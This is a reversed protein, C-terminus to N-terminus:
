STGVNQETQPSRFVSCLEQPVKARWFKECQIRWGVVAVQLLTNGEEAKVARPLEYDERGSTGGNPHRSNNQGYSLLSSALHLCIRLLSNITTTTTAKEESALIKPSHEVM